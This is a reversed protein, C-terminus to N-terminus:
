RSASSTVIEAIAVALLRSLHTCPRVYRVENRETGHVAEVPAERPVSHLDRSLRAATREGDNPRRYGTGDPASQVVECPAHRSGTTM